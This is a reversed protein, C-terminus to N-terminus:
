CRRRALRTDSLYRVGMAQFLDKIVTEFAHPTLDILNTRDDLGSLIEEEDIFRPDNVDFELIPPIAELETPAPSFNAKLGKLARIPDVLPLDLGDFTERGPACRCLRPGPRDGPRPTLTM